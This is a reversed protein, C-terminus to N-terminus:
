KNNADKSLIPSTLMSAVEEAQEKTLFICKEEDRRMTNDWWRLILHRNDQDDKLVQIDIPKSISTM